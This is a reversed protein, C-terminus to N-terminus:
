HITSIIETLENLSLYEKFINNIKFKQNLANNIKLFLNKIYKKNLM